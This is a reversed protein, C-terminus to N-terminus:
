GFRRKKGALAAKFVNADFFYDVDGKYLPGMGPIRKVWDQLNLVTAANAPLRRSNLYALIYDGVPVKDTFSLYVYNRDATAPIDFNDM